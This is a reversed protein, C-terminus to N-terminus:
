CEDPFQTRAGEMSPKIGLELLSKINENNLKLTKNCNEFIRSMDAFGNLDNRNELWEIKEWNKMLTARLPYGTIKYDNPDSSLEYNDSAGHGSRDTFGIGKLLITFEQTGSEGAKPNRFTSNPFSARSIKGKHEILLNVDINHIQSDNPNAMSIQAFLAPQSSYVGIRKSVDAIEYDAADEIIVKEIESSKQYAIRAAEMGKLLQQNQKIATDLAFQKATDIIESKPSCGSALTMAIAIVALIKNSSLM